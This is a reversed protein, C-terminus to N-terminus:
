FIGMIKSVSDKIHKQSAAKLTTEDKDEIAQIITYHEAFFSDKDIGGPSALWFRLYHSLLRELMKELQINKTSKFLIKHFQKDLNVIQKKNSIDNLGSIKNKFDALAMLDKQTARQMALNNAKVELIIRIETTERIRNLSLPTISFSSGDRVIWGESELLILVEKIPTRSVKYMQALESLNLKSEPMLDLWVIKELLSTYIKKSEM